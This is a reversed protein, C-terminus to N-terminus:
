RPGTISLPGIKKTGASTFLLGDLHAHCIFMKSTNFIFIPPSLSAYKVGGTEHDISVHNPPFEVYLNDIEKSYRVEAYFLRKPARNIHTNYVIYLLGNSSFSRADEGFIFSRSNNPGLIEMMDPQCLGVVNIIM